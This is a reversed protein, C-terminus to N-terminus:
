NRWQRRKMAMLQGRSGKASVMKARETDEKPEGSFIQQLSGLEWPRKRITLRHPSQLVGSPFIYIKQLDRPYRHLISHRQPFLHHPQLQSPTERQSFSRHPNVKNKQFSAYVSWSFGKGILCIALASRCTFWLDLWSSPSYSVWYTKQPSPKHRVLLFMM